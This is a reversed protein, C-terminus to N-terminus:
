SETLQRCFRADKFWKNIQDLSVLLCDPWFSVYSNRSWWGNINIKITMLFTNFAYGEVTIIYYISFAIFHFWRPLEKFAFNLPQFNFIRWNQYAWEELQLSLFNGFSISEISFAHECQCLSKILKNDSCFPDLQFLCSTFSRPDSGKKQQILCSFVTKQQM